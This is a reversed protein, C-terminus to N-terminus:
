FPFFILRRLTCINCFFVCWYRMFSFIDHMTCFVDMIPLSLKPISDYDLIMMTLFFDKFNITVSFSSLICFFLSCHFCSIFNAFAFCFDFFPLVTIFSSRTIVIIYFRLFILLFIFPLIFILLIFFPLM